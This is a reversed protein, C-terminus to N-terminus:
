TAATTSNARASSSHLSESFNERFSVGRSHIPALHPVDPGATAHASTTPLM